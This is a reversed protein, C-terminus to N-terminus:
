ACGREGKCAEPTSRALDYLWGQLLERMRRSPIYIWIEEGKRIASRWIWQIMTSLAYQDEDLELGNKAYYNKKDVNAFVNVPYALVIRDSYSNTARYNFPLSNDWVGASRLKGYSDSITAWLRKRSPVGRHYNNFWNSLNKKLREHGELYKSAPDDHWNMSLAHFDDGIENMNDRDCIHIKSILDRMQQTVGCPKDTFHYGTEDYAVGIEEFDLGKMKLYYYMDTGHFMYTMIVVDKFACLLDEPLAWYYYIKDSDSVEILRRSKLLRITSLAWKGAYWDIDTLFFEGNDVSIMGARRMFEIDGPSAERCEELVNVNEDIMLTYEGQRIGDLMDSTYFKFCQHTSAINKGESIMIATDRSKSFGSERSKDSPEYFHLRPCARVIRKAEDTYPTIYIYKKDPHENMYNICASSKGGGTICDCVRIM